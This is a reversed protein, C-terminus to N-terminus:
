FLPRKAPIGVHRPYRDPCEAVQEVVQYHPGAPGGFAGRSRLGLVELGAAPWRDSPTPPESVVLRAGVRLFGAACEATVGPAGFGRSVVLAFSSRLDKDRALLEARGVVITVRQEVGLRGVAGRLFQARREHADLLVWRSDPWALAMLLGPLGAGSGLDLARGDPPGGGTTVFGGAHTLHDAIPGGAVFGLSRAEALLRELEQLAEPPGADLSGPSM